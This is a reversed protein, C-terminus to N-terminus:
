AAERLEVRREGPHGLVEGLELARRRGEGGRRAGGEGVHDVLVGGGEEGGLQLGARWAGDAPREFVRLRVRVAVDAGQARRQLGVLLTLRAHGGQPLPALGGQFPAVRLQRGLPPVGVVSRGVLGDLFGELRGPRGGLFRGRRLRTQDLDVGAAGRDIALLRHHALLALRLRSRRVGRAGFGVDQGRLHGGRQGAQGLVGPRRRGEGLPERVRALGDLGQRGRELGGPGRAVGRARLAVAGGGAEGCRGLAQLVGVRFEHAGLGLEVFAERRLAELVLRRPLRGRQGGIPEPREGLASASRSRRRM